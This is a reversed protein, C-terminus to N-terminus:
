AQPTHEAGGLDLDGFLSGESLPQAPAPAPPAPRPSAPASPAAAISVTPRPAPAPARPPRAEQRLQQSLTERQRPDALEEFARQLAITIEAAAARVDPSREGFREPAFRMALKEYQTLIDGEDADIPVELAAFANRRSLEALYTRLAIALPDAGASAPAPPTPAPPRTTAPTRLPPVTVTAMPKTPAAPTAVRTTAQAPVPTAVLTRRAHRTAGLLVQLEAQTAPDLERFEVGMGPSRGEAAAREPPVVHAVEGTLLLSRGDPLEIQLHVPTLVPPPRDTRLFIGGRGLNKAYLDEFARWTDCRVRVAREYGVRDSRRPGEM